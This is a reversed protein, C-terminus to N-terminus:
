SVSGFSPWFSLAILLAASVVGTLVAPWLQWTEKIKGNAPKFMVGIIRLYYYASLITTFLGVIVLGYYGAQYAVKFVYFKAVFGVTPPIGGLTLLSIAFITALFPSRSFLGQLDDLVVGERHDDLFVLVAFAGFTALIYVALYFLLANMAEPTGSVFPILLFGAHSIGSYAFFRRMQTQRLAVFNAYILTACALGAVVEDWLQSFQPVADFFVRAFAAFAGAKTGIAMLATVPTPAGSYVDPAWMHFPVVAAEFALSATILAIGGLFLNRNFPDNMAQFAPMLASLRTTGAAGYVLAIGYLLFAAAVSGLLFYKLASEHSFEWKKMYVCLIYLAISLMEVGLFLTLFDASAGILILGFIASLLFFYYEGSSADFHYFHAYALLACGLGILLFAITFFQSIGDFKIWPLLFPNESKPAVSAVTLATLFTAIALWCSYKKSAEDFFTEFLLIALAGLLVIFLPGLAFLDNWDLTANM